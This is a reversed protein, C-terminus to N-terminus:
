ATGLAPRFAFRQRMEVAGQNQIQCPAVGLGVLFILRRQQGRSGIRALHLGIAAKELPRALGGLGLREIGLKAPM